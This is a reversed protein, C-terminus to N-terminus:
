YLRCFNCELLKMDTRVALDYKVLQLKGRAM